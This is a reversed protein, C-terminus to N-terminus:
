RLENGQVQRLHKRYDEYRALLDGWVRGPALNEVQGALELVFADKAYCKLVRLIQHHLVTAAEMMIEMQEIELTIIMEEKRDKMVAKASPHEYRGSFLPEDFRLGNGGEPNVWWAHANEMVQKLDYADRARDDVIEQFIGRNAGGLSYESLELM